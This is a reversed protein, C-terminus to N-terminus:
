VVCSVRALTGRACVMTFADPKAGSRRGAFLASCSSAFEHFGIGGATGLKAACAIRQVDM